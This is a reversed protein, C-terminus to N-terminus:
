NCFLVHYASVSLHINPLSCPISMICSVSWILSLLFYPWFTSAEVGSLLPLLVIMPVSLLSPGSHFLSSSPFLPSSLILYPFLCFGLPGLSHIFIHLLTHTPPFPGSSIGLCWNHPLRGPSFPVSILWFVWCCSLSGSSVVELLYVHGGISSDAM